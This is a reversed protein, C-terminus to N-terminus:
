AGKRLRALLLSREIQLRSVEAWYEKGYLQHWGWTRLYTLEAHIEALRRQSVRREQRRHRSARLYQLV